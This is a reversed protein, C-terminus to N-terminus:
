PLDGNEPRPEDDGNDILPLDHPDRGRPQEHRGPTPKPGPDRMVLYASITGAILVGVVVIGCVTSSV